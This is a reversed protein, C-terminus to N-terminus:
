TSGKQQSKWQPCHAGGKAARLAARLEENEARVLDMQMRMTDIERSLRQNEEHQRALADGGLCIVPRDNSM